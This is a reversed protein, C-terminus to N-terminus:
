AKDDAAPREGGDRSLFARARAVDARSMREAFFARSRQAAVSDSAATAVPEDGFTMKASRM